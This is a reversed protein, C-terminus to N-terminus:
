SEWLDRERRIFQDAEEPTSFSGQGTGILSTLPLELPELPQPDVLVIVEVTAGLPLESSQIMVTGNPQVVTKQRLGNLMDKKM